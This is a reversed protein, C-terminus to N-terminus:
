RCEYTKRFDLTAWKILSNVLEGYSDDPNEANFSVYDKFISLNGVERNAWSSGTWVTAGIQTDYLRVSMESKILATASLYPFQMNLSVKPQVDSITIDAIMVSSVGYKEGIKKITEPNIESSSVSSLIYELNGLELIRTGKQDETIFEIIRQTAIEGLSGEGNIVNVKILGIPEFKNMKFAPPVEYKKCCGFIVFSLVLVVILHMIIKRNM